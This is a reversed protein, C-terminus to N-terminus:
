MDDEDGTSYAGGKGQDNQIKRLYMEKKGLILKQAMLIKAYLSINKIKLLSSVGYIAVQNLADNFKIIQEKNEPLSDPSLEFWIRELDENWSTYNFNRSHKHADQWLADLRYLQAFASNYKSKKGDEPSFQSQTFEEDM